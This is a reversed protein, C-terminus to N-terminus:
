KHAWRSSAASAFRSKPTSLSEPSHTLHLPPPPPQAITHNISWNRRENRRQSVALHPSPAARCVHGVHVVHSLCSAPQPPRGGPFLRLFSHATWNVNELAEEKWASAGNYAHLKNSCKSLPSDAAPLLKHCGHGIVSHVSSMPLKPLFQSSDAFRRPYSTQLM